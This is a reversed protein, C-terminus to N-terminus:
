AKAEVASGTTPPSPSVRIEGSVLKPSLADRVEKLMLLEEENKEILDDIPKATEEFRRVAEPTPVPIKLSKFQDKGISGFVTGEAEFSTLQGKLSHASYYTYSRSLSRHRLAAVGRGICCREKAMNIDGVPARVSVLTDGKEAFRTPATCSIRTQPFRFGFDTRGQFFPLGEDAHNYTEGPPSQGMVIAFEDGMSGLILSDASDVFCNKFIASATAELTENMRQNLEIKDDLASLLEAISRQDEAPPLRLPFSRIIGENLNPMTAGVAHFKFWAVSKANAFVHSLFEPLKPQQRAKVIRLRIAGTGCLYGRENERVYGIHGTAQVGRRAFLIDGPELSHRGLEMAKESTVRPLVSHDIRRNRLAETPVVPVGETVYDHAHLQSGFPGTQLQLLGEDCLEGVTCLRWDSM